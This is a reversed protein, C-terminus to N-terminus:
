GFERMHPPEAAIVSVCLDSSVVLWEHVNPLSATVNLYHGATRECWGGAAVRYLAHDLQRPPQWYVLMDGEDMVQFARPGAFYLEVYREIDAPAALV